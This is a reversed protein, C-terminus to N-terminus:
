LGNEKRHKKIREMSEEVSYTKSKGSRYEESRERLMNLTEEDYTYNKGGTSEEFLSLLDFIKEEDAHEILDHLKEKAAAITM